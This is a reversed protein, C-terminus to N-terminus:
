SWLQLKPLHSVAKLIDTKSIIGLLIGDEDVVPIADLNFDIMVKAVRRIDSIPDTTIVEPLFSDELKRKLIDPINDIDGMLLELISKQSILGMIKTGFSVIPLQAVSNDILMDYAEKISLSMDVYILERSMIDKAQYIPESLEMNAMKKYSNLSEYEKKSSGDRKTYDEFSNSNPNFSSQNTENIHKLEYLNDASSRFDVSGKNYIAFM